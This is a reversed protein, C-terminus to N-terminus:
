EAERPGSQLRRHLWARALQLKRETSRLPQDLAQAVEPLTLGFFFRLEVLRELLPDVRGLEQLVEHLALLDVARKEYQRTVQNALQDEVMEADEKRERRRAHDVLLARMIKAAVAFFHQRGSFTRQAEGLLKMYTEHLLATAQLTHESGQQHMARRALSHLEQYVLSFLRDAAGHHGENMRALLTTISDGGGDPPRNM